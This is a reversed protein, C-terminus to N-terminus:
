QFQAYGPQNARDWWPETFVLFRDPHPKQFKEITTVLGQGVGGTLNVMTRINKRDMLPIAAEASTFYQMDEGIGVGNVQKAKMSLHTHVDIVPYRSRPVKTESVHLMSSPEFDALQLGKSKPEKQGDAAAAIGSAPLRAGAFLAAVSALWRRRGMRSM